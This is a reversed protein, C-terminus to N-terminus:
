VSDFYKKRRLIEFAYKSKFDFRFFVREDLIMLVTRYRYNMFKTNYNM